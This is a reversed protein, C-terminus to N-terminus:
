LWTAMNRQQYSENPKKKLVWVFYSRSVLSTRKCFPVVGVRALVPLDANVGGLFIVLFAGMAVIQLPLIQMRNGIVVDLRLVQVSLGFMPCRAIRTTDLFYRSSWLYDASRMWGLRRPAARIKVLIAFNIWLCGVRQCSGSASGSNLISGYSRRRGFSFFFLIIISILDICWTM